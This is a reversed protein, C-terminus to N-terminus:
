EGMANDAKPSQPKGCYYIEGSAENIGQIVMDSEEVIDKRSFLTVRFGAARLKEIYDPGYNRVHDPHGYAKMRRAESKAGDIQHTKRAVIPVQIVAWGCPKLVRYLESLAKADNPFMSWSMAAFFSM